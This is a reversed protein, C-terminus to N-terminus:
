WGNYLAIASQANHGLSRAHALLSLIEIPGARGDSIQVVVGRDMLVKPLMDENHINPILHHSIQRASRCASSSANAPPGRKAANQPHGEFRGQRTSLQLMQLMFRKVTPEASLTAVETSKMYSQMHRDMIGRAAFALSAVRIIKRRGENWVIIGSPRM